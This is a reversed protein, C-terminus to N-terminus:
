SSVPALLQLPLRLTARIQTDFPPTNDTGLRQLHDRADTPETLAPMPWAPRLRPHLSALRTTYCTLHPLMAEPLLRVRAYDRRKMAM